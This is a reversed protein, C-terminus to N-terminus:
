TYLHRESGSWDTNALLAVVNPFRRWVPILSQHLLHREISHCQPAITDPNAQWQAWVTTSAHLRHGTEALLLTFDHPKAVFALVAIREDLYARGHLSAAEAVLRDFLRKAFDIRGPWALYCEWHLGTPHFLKRVPDVPLGDVHEPFFADDRSSVCGCLPCEPDNVIKMQAWVGSAFM